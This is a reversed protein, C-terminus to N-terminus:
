PLADLDVQGEAKERIALEMVKDMIDEIEKVIDGAWLTEEFRKWVERIELALKPDREYIEQAAHVLEGIIGKNNEPHGLLVEINASRATDLHKWACFCCSDRM